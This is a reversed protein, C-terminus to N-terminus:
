SRMSGARSSSPTTTSCSCSDARPPTSVVNVAGIFGANKKLQVVNLGSVRPLFDRTMDSSADDVCIVEYRVASSDFALSRLCAVTMEWNNYVPIIISVEPDAVTRLPPIGPDAPGPAVRPRVWHSARSVLRQYSERRASGIPAYRDVSRRYQELLPYIASSKLESLEVAAAGPTNRVARLEALLAEQRKELRSARHKLHQLSRLADDHDASLERYLAEQEELLRAGEARAKDLEREGAQLAEELRATEGLAADRERKTNGALELVRGLEARAKELEDDVSRALETLRTLESRLEDRERAGAVVLEENKSVLELGIDVLTSYGPLEPLSAQSAVAVLYTSALKVGPTWGGQERSLTLVEGPGHEAGLPSIVSGVAVSQGWLRVQPFSESLLAVLEDQSVEHVHFPNERGQELTYVVRDPTSVLLVGDATLVRLVEAVVREHDTVHELTEFCTVLDFSAEELDSLDLIDGERFKLNALRYNARAHDVTEKDLEVGVVETAQTALLAAGYGEGAGLDLM